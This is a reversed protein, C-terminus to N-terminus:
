MIGSPAKPASSQSLGLYSRIELLERRSELHTILRNIDHATLTYDTGNHPKLYLSGNSTQAVYEANFLFRIIRAVPRTETTLTAIHNNIYKLYSALTHASIAHKQSEDDSAFPLSVSGQAVADGFSQIAQARSDAHITTIFTSGYFILYPRDTHM